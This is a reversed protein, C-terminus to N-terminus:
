PPPYAYSPAPSLRRRRPDPRFPTDDARPAAGRATSGAAQGCGDGDLAALRPRRCRPHLQTAGRGAHLHAHCRAQGDCQERNGSQSASSHLIIRCPFPGIEGADCASTGRRAILLSFIVWSLLLTAITVPAERPMPAATASRSACSPKVTTM